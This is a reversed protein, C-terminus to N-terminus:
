WTAWIDAAERKNSKELQLTATEAMPIGFKEWLVEQIQQLSLGEAREIPVNKGNETPFRPAGTIKYTSGAMTHKKDGTLRCVVLKKAFISTEKSVEELIYMTDSLSLSTTETDPVRWRLRPEWAGERYWELIVHNDNGSVLRSKMGEPTIQEQDFAIKLPHLPPEGFGVDVYYLASEENDHSDVTVMLCIHSPVVGEFTGNKYVTAEVITVPYGCKRLLNAYLSNLELCFGGRHRRLIKHGVDNLNLTVPGGYAGHQALNEFPINSLHREQLDCLLSLGPQVNLLDDEPLGLRRAYLKLFNDSDIINDDDNPSSTLKSTPNTTTLSEALGIISLLFIVAASAVSQGSKRYKNRNRVM